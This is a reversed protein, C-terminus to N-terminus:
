PRGPAGPTLLETGVEYLVILLPRLALGRETLRYETRTPFGTTRACEALERATLRHLRDSLVKASLSPLRSRLESFSLPGHMLERLVLTTWRGSIADLAVEVPCDESPRDTRGRSDPVLAADWTEM